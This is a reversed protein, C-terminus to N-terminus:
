TGVATASVSVTSCPPDPLIGVQLGSACAVLRRCLTPSGLSLSPGSQGRCVSHNTLPWTHNPKRKQRKHYSIWHRSDKPIPRAVALHISPVSISFPRGFSMIIGLAPTSIRGKTSIHHGINLWLIHSGLSPLSPAMPMVLSALPNEAGPAHKNGKRKLIWASVDASTQNLYLWSGPSTNASM